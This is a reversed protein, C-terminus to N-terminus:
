FSMILSFFFYLIRYALWAQFLYVLSVVTYHAWRLLRYRKKGEEITDLPDKVVFVRLGRIHYYYYDRWILDSLNFYFLKRDIESLKDWLKIVNDNRFSWQQTSFYSIVGSFKHIKKYAKWLVPERGTLRAVTDFIIAPLLHTFVVYFNHVWINPHLHFFYYWFVMKSPVEMGYIENYKMFEGWTISNQCSSVSNYIPPDEAPNPESAKSSLVPPPLPKLPGGIKGQNKGIDWAAALINNIVYDAPIIDAVNKADCHLTHLLGMGAGLVVGTPGYLNNIWGPIPEKATAIMISPRVICLPLDRGYKRVTDEAVTKTFAYTNPWKGLITPTISELTEDDLIDLLTLLEDSGIPPKYFIEDIFKTVCQSFATGIHVFAKLNPMERAFLLIDKTGRVNINVALRLKEDFRVTAASHFVVHSNRLLERNEPSLELGKDLQGEVMVVKGAFNPQEEKLRDYLPDEFHEKFREDSSKGKKARMILYLKGVKPCTRLLKEILIKGLFGSGGTILVECGAYFEAIDSHGQSDLGSPENVEKEMVSQKNGTSMKGIKRM